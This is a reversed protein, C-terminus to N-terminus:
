SDLSQIVPFYLFITTHMGKARENVTVCVTHITNVIALTLAGAFGGWVPEGRRRKWDCGQLIGEIVSLHVHGLTVFGSTKSCQLSAVQAFLKESAALQQEIHGVHRSIHTITRLSM